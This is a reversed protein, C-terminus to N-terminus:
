ISDHGNRNGRKSRKEQFFVCHPLGFDRAVGEFGLDPDPDIQITRALTLEIGADTEEVVHEVLDGAVACKVELDFSDAVQVDVAVVRHFIHSDGDALGERLSNAVLLAQGAIAVGVHREVLGQGADDDVQRPPGPQLEVHGEAGAHDTRQIRLEDIFEELTEDIVGADAQVDVVELAAVRVM